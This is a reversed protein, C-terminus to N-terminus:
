ARRVWYGHTDGQAIEQFGARKLVNQSSINELLTDATVTKVQVLQDSHTKVIDAVIGRGRFRRALWYGIYWHTTKDEAEFMGAIEDNVRIVYVKLTRSTLIFRYHLEFVEWSAYALWGLEELWAQNSQIVQHVQSLDEEQLPLVTIKDAM